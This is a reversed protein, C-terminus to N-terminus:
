SPPEDKRYYRALDAQLTYEGDANELIARIAQHDREIAYLYQDAVQMLKIFNKTTPEIKKYDIQVSRGRLKRPDEDDYPQIRGALLSISKDLKEIGTILRELKKLALDADPEPRGM